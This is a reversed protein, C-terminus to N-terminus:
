RAFDFPRTESRDLFQKADPRPRRVPVEHDDSPIQSYLQLRIRLRSDGSDVRKANKGSDSDSDGIKM